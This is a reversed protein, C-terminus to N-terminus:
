SAMATGAAIVFSSCSPCLCQLDSILRSDVGYFPGGSWIHRDTQQITREDIRLEGIVSSMLIDLVLRPRTAVSVWKKLVRIGFTSWIHGKCFKSVVPTPAYVLVKSEAAIQAQNIHNGGLWRWVNLVLNEECGGVFTCKWRFSQLGDGARKLDGATLVSFVLLPHWISRWFTKSIFPPVGDLQVRRKKSYRCKHSLWIASWIGWPQNEIWSSWSGVNKMKRRFLQFVHDSISRYYYYIISRFHNSQHLRSPICNLLRAATCKVRMDDAPVLDVGCQRLIYSMMQYSQVPWEKCINYM